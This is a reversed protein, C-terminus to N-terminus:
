IVYIAPCVANGDILTRAEKQHSIDQREVRMIDDGHRFRLDEAM